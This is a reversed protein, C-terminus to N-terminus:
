PATTSPPSSASTSAGSSSTTAAATATTTTTTQARSTTQAGSGMSTTNTGQAGAGNSPAPTPSPSPAPLPTAADSARLAAEFAALNPVRIGALARRVSASRAKVFTISAPGPMTMGTRSALREIRNPDSASAVQAHLLDNRGQLSGILEISRGTSANLKLLEVQMAVIGVLMVGLLPIWARGRVLRDLLPHDPLSRLFAVLRESLTQKRAARRRPVRREAPEPRPQVAPAAVPGSVRRPVPGRPSGPLRRRRGPATRSASARSATKHAPPKADAPAAPTM